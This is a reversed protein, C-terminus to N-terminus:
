VTLLRERMAFDTTSLLLLSIVSSVPRNLFVLDESGVVCKCLLDPWPFLSSKAM